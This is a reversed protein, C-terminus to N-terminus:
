LTDKHCTQILNCINKHVILVSSVCTICVSNLFDIDFSQETKHSISILISTHQLILGSLFLCHYCLSSHCFLPKAIYIKISFWQFLLSCHRRCGPGNICICKKQCFSFNFIPLYVALSVNRNYSLKPSFPGRCGATTAM